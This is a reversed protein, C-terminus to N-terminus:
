KCQKPFFRRLKGYIDSYTIAAGIQVGSHLGERSKLDGYRLIDGVRWGKQPIMRGSDRPEQELAKKMKEECQVAVYDIFRRLQVLEPQQKSTIYMTFEGTQLGYEAEIIEKSAIKLGNEIAHSEPNNEKGAFDFYPMVIIGYERLYKSVERFFRKILETGGLMSKRLMVDNNADGKFQEAEEAFFPHNFVITDYTRGKPLNAFLDSECVDANIEHRKVNERANEVAKPNIDACTASTAGYKGMVIGQVGAGCGMDLVDRKHYLEQNEYLFQALYMGSSMIDSGFVGRDIRFELTPSTDDRGLRIKRIDSERNHADLQKQVQIRQDKSLM